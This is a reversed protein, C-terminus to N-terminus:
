PHPFRDRLNRWIKRNNAFRLLSERDSDRWSRIICGDGDFRIM